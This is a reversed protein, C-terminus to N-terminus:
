ERAASRPWSAPSGGALTAGGIMVGGSVASLFRSAETASTQVGDVPWKTLDVLFALLGATPPYAGLGTVLGFAIVLASGIKLWVITTQQQITANGEILRHWM